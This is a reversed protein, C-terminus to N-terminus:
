VLPSLLTTFFIPREREEKLVASRRAESQAECVTQSQLIISFDLAPFQKLGMRCSTVLKSHEGHGLLADEKGYKSPLM